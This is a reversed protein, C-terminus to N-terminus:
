EVTACADTTTANEAPEDHVAKWKAKDFTGLLMHEAIIVGEVLASGRTFCKQTLKRGIGNAYHIVAVRNTYPGHRLHYDRELLIM